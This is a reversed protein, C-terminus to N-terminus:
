VQLKLTKRQQLHHAARAIWTKSAKTERFTHLYDGFCWLVVVATVAAFANLGAVLKPDINNANKTAKIRM